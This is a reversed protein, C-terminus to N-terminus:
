LSQWLVLESLLNGGNKVSTKTKREGEEEWWTKFETETLNSNIQTKIYLWAEFYSDVGQDLGITGVPKGFDWYSYDRGYFTINHKSCLSYLKQRQKAKLNVKKKCAEPIIPKNQCTLEYVNNVRSRRKVKPHKISVVEGIRGCVYRRGQILQWHYGASLLFVRDATRTKVTSKLWQALTPRPTILFEEIMEVGCQIFAQQIDYDSTGTVKREGNISRILRSADATTMGTISSLVAPGCFRNRDAKATGHNVCNIKLM